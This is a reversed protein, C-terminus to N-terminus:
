SPIFLYKKLEAPGDEATLPKLIYGSIGLRKCNNIVSEDAMSSLMVIPTNKDKERIMKLAEDGNLEPMVIDMFIIDPKEDQHMAIAENGNAAEIINTYNLEKFINKISHRIFKSDDVLLIKGDKPLVRKDTSPTQGAKELGSDEATKASKSSSRLLYNLYFRGEEEINIPISIIDQVGELLPSMTETDLIFYPPDFRIDLNKKAFNQTALGILTNGWEALAGQMEDNIEDQKDSDGLMKLRLQNGIALATEVYNHLLVVGEINGHTNSAVAYGKFRFNEVQDQFPEGPSAELNAMTKLSRTVEDILPSIISIQM